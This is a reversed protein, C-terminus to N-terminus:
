FNTQWWNNIVLKIVNFCEKLCKRTRWNGIIGKLAEGAVVVDVVGEELLVGAVHHSPLIGMLPQHPQLDQQILQVVTTPLLPIEEGEVGMKMEVAVAEQLDLAEAVVAGAVVVEPVAEAM